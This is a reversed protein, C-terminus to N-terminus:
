SNDLKIAFKFLKFFEDFKFVINFKSLYFVLTNSNANDCNIGDIHSVGSLNSLNDVVMQCVREGVNSVEIQVEDADQNFAFLDGTYSVNLGYILFNLRCEASLIIIEEVNHKSLFQGEDIFIADIDKDSEELHKIVLNCLADKHPSLTECQRELGTRSKIVGIDRTDASPKICLINRNQLEYSKATALLSSTKQSNITGIKCYISV